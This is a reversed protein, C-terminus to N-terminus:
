SFKRPVLYAFLLTDTSRKYSMACVFAQGLDVVKEAKDISVEGGDSVQDYPLPAMFITTGNLFLLSHEFSDPSFM